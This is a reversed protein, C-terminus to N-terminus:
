GNVQTLELREGTKGSQYIVWANYEWVVRELNPLDYAIGDFENNYLAWKGGYGLGVCRVAKYGNPLHKTYITGYEDREVVSEPLDSKTITNM